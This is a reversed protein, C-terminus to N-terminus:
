SFHEVYISSKRGMDIRTAKPRMYNVYMSARQNEKDQAIGILCIFVLTNNYKTMLIRTIQLKGKIQFQHQKMSYSKNNRILILFTM